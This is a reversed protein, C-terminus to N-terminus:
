WECYANFRSLEFLDLSKIKEELERKRNVIQTRKILIQTLIQKAEEQTLELEGNEFLYQGGVLSILQLTNCDKERIRTIMGNFEVTQYEFECDRKHSLNSLIMDTYLNKFYEMEFDLFEKAEFYIFQEENSKILKRCSNEEQLENYIEIM